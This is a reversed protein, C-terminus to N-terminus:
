IFGKGKLRMLTLGPSLRQSEHQDAYHRDGYTSNDSMYYKQTTYGQRWECSIFVVSFYHRMHQSNADHSNKIVEGNFM